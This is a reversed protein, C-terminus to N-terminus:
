VGATAKTQHRYLGRGPALRLLAVTFGAAIRCDPAGAATSDVPPTDLHGVMRRVDAPEQSTVQSRWSRRFGCGVCPSRGIGRHRPGFTSLEM